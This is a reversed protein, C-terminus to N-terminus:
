HDNQVQVQRCKRHMSTCKEQAGAHKNRKSSGVCVNNCGYHLAQRGGNEVLAAVTTPKKAAGVFIEPRM